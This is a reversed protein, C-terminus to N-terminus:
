RERAARIHSTLVQSFECRALLLWSKCHNTCSVITKRIVERGEEVEEQKIDFILISICITVNLSQMHSHQHM